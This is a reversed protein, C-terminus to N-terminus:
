EGKVSAIAQQPANCVVGVREREAIYRKATDHRDEGPVKTEVQMLLDNYKRLLEDRQQEAKALRDEVTEYKANALQRALFECEGICYDLSRRVDNPGSFYKTADGSHACDFGFWHTGGAVPYEKSNDSYTLGGHVEVDIGAEYLADYTKGVLSSNAGVDVYGCRHSDNVFLVVARLGSETIWDREVIHTM